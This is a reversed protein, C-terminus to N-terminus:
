IWLPPAHLTLAIKIYKKLFLCLHLIASCKVNKNRLSQKELHVWMCSSLFYSDELNEIKVGLNTFTSLYVWM